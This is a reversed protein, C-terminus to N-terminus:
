IIKLENDFYNKLITQIDKMTPAGIIEKWIEDGDLNKEICLNNVERHLISSAENGVMGTIILTKM